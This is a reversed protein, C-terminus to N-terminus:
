YAALSSSSSSSLFLIDETPPPGLLMRILFDVHKPRKSGEEETHTHGCAAAPKGIHTALVPPRRRELTPFSLDAWQKAICPAGVM